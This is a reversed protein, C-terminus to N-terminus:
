AEAEPKDEPGWQEYWDSWDFREDALHDTGLGYTLPAPLSDPDILVLGSVEDLHYRVNREELAEALRENADLNLLSLMEQTVRRAGQVLVVNCHCCGRQAPLPAHTLLCIDNEQYLCSDCPGHPGGAFECDAPPCDEHDWFLLRRRHCYAVCM